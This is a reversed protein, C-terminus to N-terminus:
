YTRQGKLYVKGSKVNVRGLLDGWKDRLYWMGKLLESQDEWVPFPKDKCAKEYRSIAESFTL